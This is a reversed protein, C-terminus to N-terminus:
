PIPFYFTPAPFSLRVSFSRLGQLDRAAKSTSPSKLNTKEIKKYAERNLLIDGIHYGYIDKTIREGAYLGSIVTNVEIEKVLSKETEM